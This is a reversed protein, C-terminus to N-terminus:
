SYSEIHTIIAKKQSPTLKQWGKYVPMFSEDIAVIQTKEDSFLEAMTIDLAKCVKELASVSPEYNRKGYWNAICTQTLDAAQALSYMTMGKAKMLEKIKAKVDM